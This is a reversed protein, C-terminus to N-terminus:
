FVTAGRKKLIFLGEQLSTVIITGSEFFPYTSWAGSFGPGEHFPATDFFGIERPNVPDKVDLIHLGYRYNAQYATDGRIYLNHASAPMSGMFEKALVPDELNTLDWVLTRTTPVNGAIVDSEDDMIFYKQDTTLWGQHLYAPNPHTTQAIATPNGKDTVDSIGFARGNSNLCIERGQYRQDPGSYSVCQTDHTGNDHRFCGAFQPNLPERVDVMHLGGGCTDGGGRSGVLYAFGTEENIAINHVSAIRDYHVDPEFLAPRDTVNRLKRLDFVQMGHNGAGDAVIFVHDRYVKMDRWLQTRPTNPTKPLDGILVPNSPDTIDIFSTGDNRGVLAYERGTEPDTWGWNDNTRVGRSGGDARLMSGPIFALLEVDKCDFPGVKGDPTCKREEGTLAALGDAASKLHASSRWAGSADRDYVIVSGAQHDMGSAFVLTRDAGAVIADGFGDSAVTEALAIRRPADAPSGDSGVQYVFVMGSDDGRRVPAGVWIADGAVAVSTGFRDGRQGAYAALRAAESWVGTGADRRYLFAAGHAASAAPAGIVARDGDLAIASGFAAGAEVQADLPGAETWADGQLRFEYVRGADDQAPQDAAHWGPAGILARGGAVAVAAGFADGNVADSATLQAQQSWSGDAARRFVHVVGTPEPPTEGGEAGRGGRGGRGGPTSRPDGVLLWDGDAALAVGFNTGCYGYANCGPDLGEMGQPQLTGAPQYGDGQRRFVHLRGGRQAVFLADGTAAVAAGFGDAREADAARLESAVTWGAGAQRYVYVTGPRFYTNPEGVILEGDGILASAGFSGSQAHAPAAAAAAVLALALVSTARPLHRM